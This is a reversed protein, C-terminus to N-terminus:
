KNNNDKDRPNDFNTIVVTGSVVNNMDTPTVILTDSSVASKFINGQFYDSCGFQNELKNLVDDGQAKVTLIDDKLYGYGLKKLNIYFNTIQVDIGFNNFEPHYRDYYDYIFKYNDIKFDPKDIDALIKKLEKVNALVEVHFRCAFNQSDKDDDPQKASSDEHRAVSTLENGKPFFQFAFLVVGGIVILAIIARRLKEPIKSWWKNIFEDKEKKFDSNV